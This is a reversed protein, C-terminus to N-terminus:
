VHVHVFQVSSSVTILTPDLFAAKKRKQLLHLDRLMDALFGLVRVLVVGGEVDDGGGEVSPLQAVDYLKDIFELNSLEDPSYKHGFAQVSHVSVKRESSDQQEDEEGDRRLSTFFKFM